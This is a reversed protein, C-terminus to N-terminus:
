VTRFEGTMEVGELRYDFNGEAIAKMVQELSHMTKEVSSASANVGDKLRLLDGKFDEEIRSSFQGQAVDAVVRNSEGLAAQLSDMLRNVAHAAQGAEDKDSPIYELRMSFDCGEEIRGVQGAIYCIPLTLSLTIYYAVILILFAAVGGIWYMQFYLEMLKSSAEIGDREVMLAWQEGYVDIPTYASITSIDKDKLGFTKGWSSGTYSEIGTYNERFLKASTEGALAALVMTTTITGSDPNTFSAIVSRNQPDLFSDSRMLYDPGVLYSEGTKGMNYRATMIANIGDIPLKAVGVMKVQGQANLIPHAIFSILGDHIANDNNRSYISFDVFAFQKTELSQSFAQGLGTEALPGTVVNAFKPTQQKLSYIMQGQPNILYLDNYGYQDVQNTLTANDQSLEAGVAYAQQRLIVATSTLSELNRRNTKLYRNLQDQKIERISEMQLTIQDRNSDWAGNISWWCIALFPIGALLLFATMLKYRISLNKFWPITAIAKAISKSFQSPDQMTM